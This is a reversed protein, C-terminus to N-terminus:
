QSTSCCSTTSRLWSGPSRLSTTRQGGSLEGMHQNALDVIEMRAMATTVAMRDDDTLRRLPSLGGYRGMTVVERVTVPLMENIKTGQLVYSVHRPSGGMPELLLSGSVPALLGAIGNLLTSKGSGNPGILATITGTPIQFTSADIAVSTGYAFVVDRATIASPIM